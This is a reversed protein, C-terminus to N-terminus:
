SLLWRRPVLLKKLRQDWLFEVGEWRPFGCCSAGPNQSSGDPAGHIQLSMGCTDLMGAGKRSIRQNEQLLQLTEAQCCPWVGGRIGQSLIIGFEKTGGPCRMGLEWQQEQSRIKPFLAEPPIPFTQDPGHQSQSGSLLCRAHPFGVSVSTAM